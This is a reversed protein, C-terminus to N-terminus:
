RGGRRRRRLVVRAPVAGAALGARRGGVPHAAEDLAVDRCGQAVRGGRPLLEGRPELVVDAAVAVVGAVPVGDLRCRDAVNASVRVVHRHAVDDGPVGLSRTALLVLGDDELQDLLAIAVEDVPLASCKRPVYPTAVRQTSVRTSRGTM